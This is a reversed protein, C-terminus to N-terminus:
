GYRFLGYGYGGLSTATMATSESFMRKFDKPEIIPLDPNRPSRGLVDAEPPELALALAPFTDSVINIWLIQIPNLPQGLGVGVAATM